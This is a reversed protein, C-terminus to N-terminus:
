YRAEVGLSLGMRVGGAEISPFGPNEPEFMEKYHRNESVYAGFLTTNLCLSTSGASDAGTDPEDAPGVCGRGLLALRLGFTWLHENGGLLNTDGTAEGLPNPTFRYGLRLEVPGQWGVSVAGSLIDDAGLAPPKTGLTDAGGSDLLAVETSPHPMASFNHWALSAGASLGTGELEWMAGLTVKHPVFFTIAGIRAELNVGEADVSVPLDLRTRNEGRWTLGVSLSKHPLLMLGVIPNLRYGVGVKLTNPGRSNALDLDVEATVTPLMQMSAGLALWSLPRAGLGISLSLRRERSNYLGYTPEEVPYIDIEYFGSTPMLAGGGFWVPVGGLRWLPLAAGIELFSGQTSRAEEPSLMSHVYVGSLAAHPRPVFGLGAPNYFVSSWEGQRSGAMAGATSRGGFGLGLSEAPDSHASFSTLLVLIFPVAGTPLAQLLGGPFRL